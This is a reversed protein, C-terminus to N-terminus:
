RSCCCFSTIVHLSSHVHFRHFFFDGHMQTHQADDEIRDHEARHHEVQQGEPARDRGGEFRSLVGQGGVGKCEGLLEGQIGIDIGEILQPIGQDGGDDHGQAACEAGHRQARHAGVTQRLEAELKVAQEEKQQRRRDVQGILRDEHRQQLRDAVEAQVVGM